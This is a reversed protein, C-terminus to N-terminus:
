GLYCSGSSLSFVRSLSREKTLEFGGLSPGPAFNIKKVLKKDTATALVPLYHALCNKFTEMNFYSNAADRELQNVNTVATLMYFCRPSKSLPDTSSLCRM